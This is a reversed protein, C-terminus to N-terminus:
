PRGEDIAKKIEAESLSGKALSRIARAEELIKEVDRPEAGLEKKLLQIIEGNISRSNFKARAKLRKYLPDPLNKITLNAM